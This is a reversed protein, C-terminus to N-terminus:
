LEGVTEYFARERSELLPIAQGLVLRQFHESECHAQFAPEDDYIEFLRFVRPEAPDRYPQYFRCGPEARSLPALQRLIDTVIDEQGPKATWVATVVHRM